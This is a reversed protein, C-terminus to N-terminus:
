RRSGTEVDARIRRVSPARGPVSMRVFVWFDPSGVKDLGSLVASRRRALAQQADALASRHVEVGIRDDVLLDVSGGGSTAVDAECARGTGTILAFLFLETHVALVEREDSSQLRAVFAPRQEAPLLRLFGTLQARARAAPPWASRRTFEWLSEGPQGAHDTVAETPDFFVDDNM